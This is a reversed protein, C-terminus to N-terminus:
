DFSHRMVAVIAVLFAPERQRVGPRAAPKQGYRRVIAATGSCILGFVLFNPSPGEALRSLTLCLAASNPRATFERKHRRM